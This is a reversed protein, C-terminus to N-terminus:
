IEWEYSDESMEEVKAGRTLGESACIIQGDCILQISVTLPSLYTEKETKKM